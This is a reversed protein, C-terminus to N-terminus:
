NKLDFAKTLKEAMLQLHAKSAADTTAPIAAVICKKLATLHPRVVILLESSVSQAAVGGTDQTKVESPTIIRTLINTYSNQLARRYPNIATHTKLEAWIGNRMDALFDACTYTNKDGYREATKILSNMRVESMVNGLVMISIKSVSSSTLFSEAKDTVPRYQLWAPTNFVEQNLWAVAQKQKAAPVPRQLDGQQEVSKQEVYCGGINNAVHGAYRSFQGLLEGYMTQLDGYGRNPRRTWEPLLPLIRKLNKIGYTSAKMADDGLDENTSRPDFAFFWSQPGFWLRHNHGLSDIIWKNLLPEEEKATKVDPFLRYGWNIAWKDYDGIRPYIGKESISDEPQAVYNFRAYDMISPTHGHAEVWNKNRLSDVPVTSSSGFNHMLGLTHGIEHSSVFRILQGMLEDDFEMKHARPDIAGAQIMYWNHLLSMVNHYWNVHSELIEGSRPDHVHPGSANAVSSPKYVIASHSADELSWTSDNLPAEKAFIAEKFGAKEFAKQWDNVGQILYPVWKKPTAPDIYFVIPKQPVVLEGRKYKEMDDPKPELRWRTIMNQDKIGQPNSDFDIYGTSFYGVRADAMRPRMPIQPLLVLSNNLEFTLPEGGPPMAAFTKVTRIELNGSFTKLYRTYSRDRLVGGLKFLAKSRASFSFIGNDDSVIETIDIVSAPHQENYAKVPFAFLIPKLSSNLVSRYMGNETSDASHIQNSVGRMFLKNDPGKEFTIVREDIEDGAFYPGGFISGAMVAGEAPSKAIRNVMLIERGLLSDPIELYYTNELKHTTIMGKMTVAKATILKNYSQPKAMLVSDQKLPTKVASVESKGDKKQAIAEMACLLAAAMMLKKM